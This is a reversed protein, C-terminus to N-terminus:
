RLQKILGPRKIEGTNGHEPRIKSKQNVSNPERTVWRHGM